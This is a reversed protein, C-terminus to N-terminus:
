VPNRRCRRRNSDQHDQMSSQRDTWGKQIVQQRNAPSNRIPHSLSSMKANGITEPQITPCTSRSDESISQPEPQSDVQRERSIDDQHSNRQIWDVFAEQVSEREDSQFGNPQAVLLHNEFRKIYHDLRDYAHKLTFILSQLEQEHHIAEHNEFGEAAAILTRIELLQDFFQNNIPRDTNEESQGERLMGTSM